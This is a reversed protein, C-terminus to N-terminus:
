ASRAVQRGKFQGQQQVRDAQGTPAMTLCIVSRVALSKLRAAVVEPSTWELFPRAPRTSTRPCGCLATAKRGSELRDSFCTMSGNARHRTRERQSGQPLVRFLAKAM